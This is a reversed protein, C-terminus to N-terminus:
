RKKALVVGVIGAAASLALLGFGVSRPQAFDFKDRWDRSKAAAAAAAAARAAAIGATSSSSGGAVSSSCTTAVSDGSTSSNEPESSTGSSTDYDQCQAFLSDISGTEFPHRGQQQLGQKVHHESAASVVAVMNAHAVDFLPALHAKLAALVQTEHSSLTCEHM